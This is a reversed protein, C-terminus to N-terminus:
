EDVLSVAMLNLCLDQKCVHRHQFVQTLTLIFYFDHKRVSHVLDEDCGQEM